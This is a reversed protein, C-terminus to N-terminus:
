ILADIARVYSAVTEPLAANEGREPDFGCVLMPGAIYDLAMFMPGMVASARVNVGDAGSYVFKGEGHIYATAHNADRVLSPLPLADIHGGVLQQLQELTGDLSIEQLPGEVPILLAKPATSTM